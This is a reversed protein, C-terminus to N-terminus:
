GARCVRTLLRPCFMKRARRAEVLAAALCSSLHWCPSGPRAIAEQDGGCQLVRLAACHCRPVHTAPARTRV